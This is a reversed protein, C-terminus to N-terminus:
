VLVLYLHNRRRRRRGGCPRPAGCYSFKAAGYRREDVRRYGPPDIQTEAAGKELM